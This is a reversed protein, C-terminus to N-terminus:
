APQTMKESLESINNGFMGELFIKVSDDERVFSDCRCIDLTNEHVYDEKKKIDDMDRLEKTGNVIRIFKEEVQEGCHTIIHSVYQQERMAKKATETVFCIKEAIEMCKIATKSLWQGIDMIIVDFRGSDILSATFKHLEDVTLERLPNRGRSVAFTEVGFDDKVMYRDLFPTNQRQGNKSGYVGHMKNFLEYLYVATSKATPNQPFYSGSSDLEEFSLYLVRKGQFRCFEQAAAMAMTTCGAGGKSSTFAFIRVDQRKLNVARRGTLAEYIEFISAVMSTASAYKYLCYRSEVMNRAVESPKEALYVIRGGYSNKAEEGDWLVIDFDRNEELFEEADFIRIIFGRCISLMALSLSRGYEKDWTVIAVFINEM